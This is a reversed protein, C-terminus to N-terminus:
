APPLLGADKLDQLAGSVEVESFHKGCNKLKKTIAKPGHHTVQKREILYHVSALLELRGALAPDSPDANPDFKAKELLTRLPKLKKKAEPGLSWHEYADAIGNPDAFAAFMDDAVASCYPGRIYWGYYYGLDLGAAQALYVVKQVVLRDRFSKMSAEIGLRKLTLLSAIQRRDM